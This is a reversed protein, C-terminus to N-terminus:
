RRASILHGTQIDFVWRPKHTDNDLVPAPNRANWKNTPDVLFKKCMEWNIVKGVCDRRTKYDKQALKSCECIIHNITENRGGCLRCKSNQQKTYSNPSIRNREYHKRKKAMDLKEPTFHPKNNM